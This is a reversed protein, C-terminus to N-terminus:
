PSGVPATRQEHAYSIDRELIDDLVLAPKWGLLAAVRRTEPKRCEM